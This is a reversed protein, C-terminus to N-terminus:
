PHLDPLRRSPEFGKKEALFAIVWEPSQRKAKKRLLFSKGIQAVDCLSPASLSAHALRHKCLRAVCFQETAVRSLTYLAFCWPRTTCKRWLSYPEVMCVKEVAIVWEPSQRKAKKASFFSKGIQAVDCLSPASLSAHALRHKCLRAM